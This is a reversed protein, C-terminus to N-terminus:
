NKYLRYLTFNYRDFSMDAAYVARYGHSPVESLKEEYGPVAFYWLTGSIEPAKDWDTKKLEPEYYRMCIEIQYDDEFIIYGDEQSLNSDFFDTMKRPDPIYEEKFAQCYDVALVATFIVATFILLVKEKGGKEPITEPLGAFLGATGLWFPGLSPVLYRATFFTRGLAVSVGYGFFLTLYFVSILILFPASDKKLRLVGTFLFFLFCLLLLASLVTVNTVFPFRLDSLFSSLGLPQMSFYSGAKRLQRLTIVFCPLYLLFAALAWFFLGKSVKRHFLAFIFLFLWLFAAGILAYHHTYGCLATFLALVPLARPLKETLAGAAYVAAGSLFFLAWSYMRIEVGYHLLHPMAATMLAFVLAASEDFLKRVATLNLLLLLLMPIVSFLKLSVSNFGTLSTFAWGAVNYFPPLTDSLTKQWMDAFSGRIICASFAEDVWLNNNFILSLYLIGSLVSIGTLATLRPNKLSKM